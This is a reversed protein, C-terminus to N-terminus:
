ALVQATLQATAVLKDSADYLRAEVFIVSRGAKVVVAEGRFFGPKAPRIFNTKLEITPALKGTAAYAATTASYDLMLTLYGGCITGLANAFRDDAEFATQGTGEKSSLQRIQAKVLAFGPPVMQNGYRVLDEDSVGEM